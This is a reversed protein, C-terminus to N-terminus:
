SFGRPSRGDMQHLKLPPQNGNQRNRLLARHAHLEKNGHSKEKALNYCIQLKINLSHFKHTSSLSARCPNSSASPAQRLVPRARNAPLSRFAGQLFFQRLFYTFLCFKLNRFGQIQQRYFSIVSYKNKCIYISSM